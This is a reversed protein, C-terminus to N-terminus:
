VSEPLSRHGPHLTATHSHDPRHRWGAAAWRVFPDFHDPLSLSHAAAAAAAAMRHVEALGDVIGCAARGGEINSCWIRPAVLTNSLKAALKRPFNVHECKVFTKKM